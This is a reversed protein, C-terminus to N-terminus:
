PFEVMEDVVPMERNESIPMGKAQRHFKNGYNDNIGFIKEFFNGIILNIKWKKAINWLIALCQLM